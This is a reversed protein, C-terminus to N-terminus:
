AIAAKAKIEVRRYTKPLLIINTARHQYLNPCRRSHKARHQMIQKGLLNNARYNVRGKHRTKNNSIGKVKGARKTGKHAILKTRNDEQSIQSTPNIIRTAITTIIHLRHIKIKCVKDAAAIQILPSLARPARVTRRSRVTFTSDVARSSNNLISAIGKLAKNIATQMQKVKTQVQTQLARPPFRPQFNIIISQTPNGTSNIATIAARTRTRTSAEM